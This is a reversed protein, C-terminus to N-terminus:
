FSYGIGFHGNFYSGPGILYWYFDYETRHTVGQVYVHDPGRFPMYKYGIFFDLHKQKRTIYQYGFALGIGIGPFSHNQKVSSVSSDAFTHSFEMNSSFYGGSLKLQTYFGEPYEDSLYMRVFPEAEPGKFFLYYLSLFAGTSYKESIPFEAKMRVKSVFGAPAYSIIVSNEFPTQAFSNVALFILIATASYKM